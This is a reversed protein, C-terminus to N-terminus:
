LIDIRNLIINGVFTSVIIDEPFFLVTSRCEGPFQVKYRINVLLVEPLHNSDVRAHAFLVEVLLYDRCHIHDPFFAAVRSCLSRRPRDVVVVWVGLLHLLQCEGLHRQVPTM